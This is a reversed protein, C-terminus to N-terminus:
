VLLITPLTLHTYSVTIHEGGDPQDPVPVGWTFTTRSISLDRLGERMFSLVENRRSIPAIFDDNARIHAELPERWKSLKFFYRLSSAHAADSFQAGFQPIARRLIARRIARRAAYSSEKVWEVPAGTPALGDVLEGETYFAEDRVSYWGEYEGLYIDGSDLLKRWLAQAAATHRSETTRIFQDCSFNYVPLLARFTDSVRDAFAQPTEGAAEASQQM